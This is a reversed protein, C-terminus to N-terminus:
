KSVCILISIHVEANYNKLPKDESLGGGFFTSILQFPHGERGVINVYTSLKKLPSTAKKAKVKWKKNKRDDSLTRTTRMFQSLDQFSQEKNKLSEFNNKKGDNPKKMLPTYRKKLEILVKFPIEMAEWDESPLDDISDLTDYLNDSLMKKWKTGESEKYHFFDVIEDFLPFLSDESVKESMTTSAIQQM